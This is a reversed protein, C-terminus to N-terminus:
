CSVSSKPVHNEVSLTKVYIICCNPFTLKGVSYFLSTSADVRDGDGIYLKYVQLHLQISSLCFYFLQAFGEM